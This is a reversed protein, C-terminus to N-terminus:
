TELSDQLEQVASELERLRRKATNLDHTALDTLARKAVRAANDLRPKLEPRAAQRHARATLSQLELVHGALPVLLESKLRFIKVEDLLDVLAGWPINGCLEHLANFQTKVNRNVTRTAKSRKAAMQGERGRKMSESILEFFRQPPGCLGLAAAFGRPHRVMWGDFAMADTMVARLLEAQKAASLEREATATAEQNRAM